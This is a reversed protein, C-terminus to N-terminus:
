NEARRAQVENEIDVLVKNFDDKLEHTWYRLVIWGDETLQRSVNYDRKKNKSIKDQWFDANTEPISGHMPCGHWFCGDVFVVVRASPFVIDPKGILNSKLRYRFGNGWLAKRLTLEPKTDRGRVRSMCKKRQSKTLVDALKKDVYESRM